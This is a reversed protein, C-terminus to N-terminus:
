LEFIMLLSERLMPFRKVLLRNLRSKPMYTQCYTFSQVTLGAITGVKALTYPTFWFRHDTNICEVGRFVNRINFLDHANPVTMIVKEVIGKYKEGIATIFMVPNDVHELVEGIIMYDWKQGMLPNPIDDCVIDCQLVEKLGIEDRVYDVLKKDIDLGWCVAASDVLRQHLWTRKEIKKKILPLHDAFGVHIVRKNKAIDELLDLRRPLKSISREKAVHVELGNSFKEGKLFPIVSNDFQV